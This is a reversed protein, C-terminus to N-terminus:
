WRADIASHECHDWRPRTLHAWPGGLRRSTISGTDESPSEIAPGAALLARVCLGIKM